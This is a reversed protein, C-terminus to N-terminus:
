LSLRGDWPHGFMVRKDGLWDLSFVTGTKQARSERQRRGWGWGEADKMPVWLCALYIFGCDHTQALM